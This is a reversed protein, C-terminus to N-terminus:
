RYLFAGFSLIPYNLWATIAVADESMKFVTMM